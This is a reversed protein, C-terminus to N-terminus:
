RSRGRLREILGCTLIAASLCLFALLQMRAENDDLLHEFMAVGKASFHDGGQEYSFGRDRVADDDLRSPHGM